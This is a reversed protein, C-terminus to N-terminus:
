QKRVDYGVICWPIDAIIGRKSLGNYYDVETALDWCIWCGVGGVIGPVAGFVSGIVGIGGSAAATKNLKRVWKNAASTSKYRRKGWWYTKDYTSGGQLYFAKDDTEIMSGDELMTLEGSELKKNSDEIGNIFIEAMDEKSIPAIGNKKNEDNIAEVDIDNITEYIENENYVIINDDTSFRNSEEINEICEGIENQSVDNSISSADVSTFSTATITVVLAIASIRALLKM